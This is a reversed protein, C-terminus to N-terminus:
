CLTWNKVFPGIKFMIDIKKVHYGIKSLIDMKFFLIDLKQNKLVFNEIKFLFELQRRVHKDLQCRFTCPPDRRERGWGDTGVEGLCLNWVIVYMLSSFIISLFHPLFLRSLFHSLFLSVSFILSFFHLLFFKSFFHTLFLLSFFFHYPYFLSLSETLYFFSINYNAM